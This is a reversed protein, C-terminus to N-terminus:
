VELPRSFLRLSVESLLFAKPPKTWQTSFDALTLEKSLFSPALTFMGESFDVGVMIATTEVAESFDQWTSTQNQQNPLQFLIL